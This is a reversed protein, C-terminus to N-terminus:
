QNAILKDLQRAAYIPNEANYIDTNEINSTSNIKHDSDLLCALARNFDQELNTTLATQILKYTHSLHANQRRRINPNKSQSLDFAFSDHLHQIMHKAQTRAQSIPYQLLTNAFAVQINKLSLKLDVIVQKSEIEVTDGRPDDFNVNFSPNQHTQDLCQYLGSFISDMSTKIQDHQQCKQLQDLNSPESARLFRMPAGIARNWSSEGLFYNFRLHKLMIYAIATIDVGDAQKLSDVAAQNLSTPALAHFRTHTQLQQAIHAAGFQQNGQTVLLRLLSKPIIHRRDHNHRMLLWNISNNPSNHVEEPESLKPNSRTPRSKPLQIQKAKLTFFLAATALTDAAADHAGVLDQQFFHSFLTTLKHDPPPVSETKSWAKATQLTCSKKLNGLYTFHDATTQLNHYALTQAVSRLDFAINHGVVQDATAFHELLRPGIKRWDELQNQQDLIRLTALTIGHINSAQPSIYDAAFCGDFYDTITLRAAGTSTPKIETVLFCLQIALCVKSLGHTEVDFFVHKENLSSAQTDALKCKKAPSELTATSGRSAPNPCEVIKALWGGAAQYQNSTTPHSLNDLVTCSNLLGNYVGPM